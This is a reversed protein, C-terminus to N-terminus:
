ILDEEILQKEEAAKKTNIWVAVGDGKYHPANHNETRAKNKFCAIKNGLVVVTLYKEGVKLENGM